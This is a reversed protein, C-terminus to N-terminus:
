GKSCNLFSPSVTLPVIPNDRMCTLLSFMGKQMMKASQTMQQRAKGILLDASNMVGGDIFFHDGSYRAKALADQRERTGPETRLADRANVQEKTIRNVFRRAETALKYGKSVLKEVIEHNKTEFWELLEITAREAIDLESDLDPSDDLGCEVIEYRMRESRLPARTAPYYGCKKYAKLLHEHSLYKTFANVLPLVSGNPSGQSPAITINGGFILWGIDVHTLNASLGRANMRAEYLSTRNNYIATKFQGFVQDMEQMIETSNPMGPFFSAGVIHTRSLFEIGTSTFLFLFNTSSSFPFLRELTICHCLSKCTRGPGMDAKIMVRKGPVDALDPILPLIYNNIYENFILKNMGGKKSIAFMSDHWRAAPFGYQAVIQQFSEISKTPIKFNTKSSADSPFIVLPAVMEKGIACLMLTVADGSKITPTGSENVATTTPTISPRGGANEDSSGDLSLKCEDFIILRELQGPLYVVFGEQHKERVSTPLRAFGREVLCNEWRIFHSKANQITLWLVRRAERQDVICTNQKLANITQIRDYFQWTDIISKNESNLKQNVMSGLLTVIETRNLRKSANNQEITSMTYILDAMDHVDQHSIVGSNGVRPPSKGVRDEKVAAILQDGSVLDSFGLLQNTLTACRTATKCKELQNRNSKVTEFLTSGIKYAATRIDRVHQQWKRAEQADESSKRRARGTFYKEISKDRTDQVSLQPLEFGSNTSPSGRSSSRASSLTTASPSSSSFFRNVSTPPCLSLEAITETLASVPSFLNTEITQTPPPPLAVSSSEKAKELRKRCNYCNMYLNTGGRRSGDKVFIEDERCGIMKLITPVDTSPLYQNILKFHELKKKPNSQYLSKGFQQEMSAYETAISSQYIATEAFEKEIGARIMMDTATFDVTGRCPSLLYLKAAIRVKDIEIM